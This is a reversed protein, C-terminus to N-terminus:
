PKPKPNLTKPKPDLAKESGVVQAAEAEVPDVEHLLPPNKLPTLPSYLQKLPHKVRDLTRDPQLSQSKQSEAPKPKPPRPEAGGLSGVNRSVWVGVALNMNNQESPTVRFGLGKARFGM